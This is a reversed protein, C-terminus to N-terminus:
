RRSKQLKITDCSDIAKKFHTELDIGDIKLQLYLKVYNARMTFALSYLFSSLRAAARQLTFSYIFTGM